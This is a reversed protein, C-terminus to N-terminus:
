GVSAIQSIIQDTVSSVPAETNIPVAGKKIMKDEFDKYWNVIEEQESEEKGFENEKRTGLRHLFIKEGCHLLFVKDFLDFYEDQNSAIGAIIITDGRDDLLKMLTDKDCIWEHAEIWDKGVGSQYKAREGTVKNKWHCLGPVADIDFARVGRKGLEKVLASKGTGSVGTVYFKKM